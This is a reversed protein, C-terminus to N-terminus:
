PNLDAGWVYGQRPATIQCWGQGGDECSIITVSDGSNLYAIENGAPVDYITTAERATRTPAAAPPPNAAPPPPNNAQPPPPPPPNNAPPPPNNGAIQFPACMLGLRDILVGYGGTLGIAFTGVPCKAMAENTAIGGATKTQGVLTGIVNGVLVHCIARVHHVDGNGDSWVELAMVAQDPPCRYAANIYGDTTPQTGRTALGYDHGIIHGGPEIAQCVGAISNMAKAARYNFGVLVDGAQCPDQFDAGGTGGVRVTYTVEAQAPAAAGLVLALGLCAFLFRVIQAPMLARGTLTASMALPASGAIKTLTRSAGATTTWWVEVLRTNASTGRIAAKGVLGALLCKRSTVSSAGISTVRAAQGRGFARDDAACPRRRDLGLNQHEVLRGSGQRRAVDVFQECNQVPQAFRDIHSCETRKMLTKM